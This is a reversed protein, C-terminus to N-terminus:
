YDIMRNHTIMIRIQHWGLFSIGPNTKEMPYDLLFSFWSDQGFVMVMNLM